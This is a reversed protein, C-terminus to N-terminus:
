QKEAAVIKAPIHKLAKNTILKATCESVVLRQISMPLYLVTETDECRHPIPTAHTQIASNNTLLSLPSLPVLQARISMRDAV